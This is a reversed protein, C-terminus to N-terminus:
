WRFRGTILVHHVVEEDEGARLAGGLIATGGQILAEARPKNESPVPLEGGLRVAWDLETGLYRSSPAVNHHNRDSGGARFAYFPHRVPATTAASVVGFRLEIWSTPAVTVIPQLFVGRRFSGETALAEAGDPPYGTNEPDTVLAHTAAEVGGQVHDFLIFGVDFDRDFTFDNSFGDDGDGDSSALGGRVHFGLRREPAYLTGVGTFGGSLVTLAERENYSLSRNTRGVILAAEMALRLHWGTEQTREMDKFLDGWRDLYLDFVAVDTARGDGEEQHRYVAYLGAQRILDRYVVSGVGQFALQGDRFRATDDGVVWDFAGSVFLPQAPRGTFRFRVVRDGFDNRGFWPDGAGDDALMGLGWQSTVLGAEIVITDNPRVTVAARRPKFGDLSIAGYTHRLREDITGPVDWLDGVLQGTVLDWETSFTVPRLQLDFRFRLRQDLVASQGLMNGEADVPFDTLFSGQVRYEGRFEVGLAGPEDKKLEIRQTADAASACLVVAAFVAAGLPHVTM